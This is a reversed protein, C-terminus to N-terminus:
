LKEVRRSKSVYLPQNRGQGLSASNCHHIRISECGQYDCGTMAVCVNTAEQQCMAAIHILHLRVILDCSEVISSALAM